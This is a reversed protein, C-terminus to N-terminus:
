PELKRCFIFVKQIVDDRQKLNPFLKIISLHIYHESHSSQLLEVSVNPTSTGWPVHYIRDGGTRDIISIQGVSLATFFDWYNLCWEVEGIYSILIKSQEHSKKLNTGRSGLSWWSQSKAMKLFCMINLKRSRHCIDVIIVKNFFPEKPEHNQLDCDM